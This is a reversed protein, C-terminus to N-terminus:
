TDREWLYKLFVILGLSILSIFNNDIFLFLFFLALYISLQIFTAKLSKEEIILSSLFLFTMALSIFILVVFKNLNVETIVLFLLSFLIFYSAINLFTSIHKKSM